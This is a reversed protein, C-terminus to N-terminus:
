FTVTGGVPIAWAFGCAVCRLHVSQSGMPTIRKARRGDCSQGATSPDKGRKCPAFVEPPPPPAPAEVIPDPPPAAPAPAVRRSAKAAPRSPKKVPKQSVKKASGKNM